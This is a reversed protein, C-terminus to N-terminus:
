FSIHNPAHPPESPGSTQSVLIGTTVAAAAVAGGLALWFWWKRYVPQRAASSAGSSGVLAVQLRSTRQEAISLTVEQPHYGAARLLVTHLGVLAPRQHPTIGSENGDVYVSAGAPTTDVALSGRPRRADAALAQQALERLSQAVEAVTCSACTSAQQVSAAGLEINYVDIQLQYTTKSASIREGSAAFRLLAGAGAQKGLRILCRAEGCERLTPDGQMARDLAAADVVSLRAATVAQGVAQGLPARLEPAVTPASLVAVAGTAAQAPAAACLGIVFTWFISARCRRLAARHLRRQGRAALQQLHWLQM